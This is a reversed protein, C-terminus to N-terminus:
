KVIEYTKYMVNLTFLIFFILQSDSGDTDYHLNDYVYIYNAM